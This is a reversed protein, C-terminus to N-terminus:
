MHTLAAIDAIIQRHLDTLDAATFVHAWYLYAFVMTKADQFDSVHITLPLPEREPYLYNITATSQYERNNRCYYSFCVQPAYPGYQKSFSDAYVKRNWDYHRCKYMSRSQNKVAEICTPLDDSRSFDFLIPTTMEYAGLSNKENIGVRNAIPIEIVFRKRGTTKRLHRALAAVIVMHPSVKNQRGYEELATKLEQTGLLSLRQVIADGQGLLAPFLPEAQSLEAFKKEWFAADQRYKEGARYKAIGELHRAFPYWGVTTQGSSLSACIKDKLSLASYGDFIVHNCCLYIHHVSDAISYIMGGFLKDRNNLIAAPYDRIVHDFDDRGAFNVIPIHCPKCPHFAMFCGRNSAVIQASFIDANSMCNEVMKAITEPPIRQPFEITIAINLLNGALAENFNFFYDQEDSLPLLRPAASPSVNDHSSM